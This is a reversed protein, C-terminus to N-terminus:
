LAESPMLDDDGQSSWQVWEDVGVATSRPTRDTQSSVAVFAEPRDNNEMAPQWRLDRDALNDLGHTSEMGFTALQPLRASGSRTDPAPRDRRGVSDIPGDVGRRDSFGVDGLHNIEDSAGQRQLRRNQKIQALTSQAATAESLVAQQAAKARMSLLERERALIAEYETRFQLWRPGIPQDAAETLLETLSDELLDAIEAHDEWSSGNREIADFAKALKGIGTLIAGILVGWLWGSQLVTTTAIAVGGALYPSVIASKSLLYFRRNSRRSLHRCEVLRPIYISMIWTQQISALGSAAVSQRVQELFEDPSRKIKRGYFYCVAIATAIACVVFLVILLQFILQWM